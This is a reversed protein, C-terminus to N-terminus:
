GGSITHCQADCSIGDPPDCEEPGPELFGDGCTAQLCTSLCADDDETNGDDCQEGADLIGNGCRPNQCNRECTDGDATNGDDCQEGVDLVGDGCASSPTCATTDFRCSANCALTGSSFGLDNCSKGHLDGGDCQESSEVVGDGCALCAPDTQCDPDQCDELNDQDNDEGDACHGAEGEQCLVLGAGTAGGLSAAVIAQGADRGTLRGKETSTNGVSAVEPRDISWSALDTVDLRTGDTFLATATLQLTGGVLVPAPDPSVTLSAVAPAASVTVTTAASLAGLQARVSTVGPALGTLLGAGPGEDEVLALTPDQSSWRALATLDRQSGDLFTGTLALALQGGLPVLPADPTISLSVLGGAGAPVLRVTTTGTADPNAQSRAEVVVQPDPPLLAPAQYLGHPDVAGDESGGPLSWAVGPDQAGLVTASLQLNTGVEVVPDQPAVLVTVPPHPAPGCGLALIGLLTALARGTCPAHM